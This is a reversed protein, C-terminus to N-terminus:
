LCCVRRGQMLLVALLGSLGAFALRAPSALSKAPSAVFAHGPFTHFAHDLSPMQLLGPWLLM